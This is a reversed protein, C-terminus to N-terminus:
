PKPNILIETVELYNCDPIRFPPKGKPGASPSIFEAFARPVNSHCIGYISAHDLVLRLKDPTETWVPLQGKHVTSKATEVTHTCVLQKRRM